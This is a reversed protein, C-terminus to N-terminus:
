FQISLGNSFNVTAGPNLDRYWLQFYYTNGLSIQGSITVPLDEPLDFGFGTTSTGAVNEFDGNTDFIGLSNGSTGNAPNYRGFPAALCLTGQGLLVPQHTGESMVFFGPSFLTPGGTAELRYGAGLTTPIASLDVATGSSNLGAPECFTQVLPNGCTSASLDAYLVTHLSSFPNNSPGGCGNTNLYGGFFSCYTISTGPGQVNIIDFSDLGTSGVACTEGAYYTGGGGRSAGPPEADM